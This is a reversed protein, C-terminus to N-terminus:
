KSIIHISNLYQPVQIVHLHNIVEDLLTLLDLQMADFVQFYNQSLSPLYDNDQKLTFNIVVSLKIIIRMNEIIKAQSNINTQPM